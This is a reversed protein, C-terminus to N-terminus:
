GTRRPRFLALENVVHNLNFMHKGQHRFRDNKEVEKQGNPNSNVDVSFKKYPCDEPNGSQAGSRPRM